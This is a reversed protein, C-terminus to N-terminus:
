GLYLPDLVCRMYVNDDELVACRQGDCTGDQEIKGNV